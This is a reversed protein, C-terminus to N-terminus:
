LFENRIGVYIHKITIRQGVEPAFHTMPAQNRMKVAHTILLKTFTDSDSVM